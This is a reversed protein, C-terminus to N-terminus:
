DHKNNTKNRTKISDNRVVQPNNDYITFTLRCCHTRLTVFSQSLDLLSIVISSSASANVVVDHWQGGRLVIKVVGHGPFFLGCYKLCLKSLNLCLKTIKPM